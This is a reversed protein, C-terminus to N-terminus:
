GVAKSVWPVVVPLGGRWGLVAVAAALFMDSITITLPYTLNPSPFSDHSLGFRPKLSVKMSTGLGRASLVGLPRM